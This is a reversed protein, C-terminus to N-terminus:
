FCTEEKAESAARRPDPAEQLRRQKPCHLQCPREEGTSTKRLQRATSTGQSGLSEPEPTDWAETM